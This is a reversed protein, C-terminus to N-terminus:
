GSSVCSRNRPASPPTDDVGSGVLRLAVTLIDSGEAGESSSFRDVSVVAEIGSLNETNRSADAKMMAPTDSTMPARALKAGVIPRGFLLDHGHGTLAIAGMDPKSIPAAENGPEGARGDQRHRGISL